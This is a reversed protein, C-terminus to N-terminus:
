VLARYAALCAGLLTEWRPMTLGLDAAARRNDLVTYRPRAAATSYQDSRIAEVRAAPALAAAIARAFGCWTTSGDPVLHYLGEAAAKGFAIERTM